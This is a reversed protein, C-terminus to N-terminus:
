AAEVIRYYCVLMAYNNSILTFYINFNSYRPFNSQQQM